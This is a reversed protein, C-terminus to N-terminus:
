LSSKEQERVFTEYKNIQNEAKLEEKLFSTMKHCKIRLCPGPFPFMSWDNTLIQLPKM